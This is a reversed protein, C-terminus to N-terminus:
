CVLLSSESYCIDFRRGTPALSYGYSM